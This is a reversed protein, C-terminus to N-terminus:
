TAKSTMKQFAVLSTGRLPSKRRGVIKSTIARGIKSIFALNIGFLIISGAVLSLILFLVYYLGGQGTRLWGFVVFINFNAWVLMFLAFITIGLKKSRFYAFLLAPGLILSAIPLYADETDELDAFANKGEFIPNPDLNIVSIVAFATILIGLYLSKRGFKEDSPASLGRLVQAVNIRSAMISPIIGTLQSIIFGAIFSLVLTEQSIVTPIDGTPFEFAVGMFFVLLRGYLAGGLLGLFAGIIGLLLSETLNAIIIQRRKSGIARLIGTERERSALAMSQINIIVLVGALMIISGFVNLIVTISDVAEAINDILENRTDSYEYLFGLEPMGLAQIFVQQFLSMAHSSEDGLSVNDNWKIFIESIPAKGYGIVFDLPNSKRYETFSRVVQNQLWPLSTAIYNSYGEEGKGKDIFVDKIKINLSIDITRTENLLPPFPISTVSTAVTLNEGIPDDDLFILEAMASGIYIEGPALNSIELIKNDRNYLEGFGTEDLNLGVLSQSIESSGTKEHLLAVSFSLRETISDIFPTHPGAAQLKGLFDEPQTGNFEEFLTSNTVFLPSASNYVSADIEGLAHESFLQFGAGLSDTGIQVGSFLSVGLAIGMIVAVNQKPRRFVSRFALKLSIM